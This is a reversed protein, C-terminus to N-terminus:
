PAERTIADHRLADDQTRRVSLSSRDLFVGSPKPGGTRVGTAPRQHRNSTATERSGGMAEIGLFLIPGGGRLKSGIRIGADHNPDKAWRMCPHPVISRAGVVGCSGESKTM